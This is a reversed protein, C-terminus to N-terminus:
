KVSESEAKELIEIVKDVNVFKYQSFQHYINTLEDVSKMYDVQEILQSKSDLEKQFMIFIDQCESLYSSITYFPHQEVDDDSTAGRNVSEYLKAFKQTSKHLNTRNLDMWTNLDLRHQEFYQFADNQLQNLRDCVQKQVRLYKYIESQGKELQQMYSFQTLRTTHPFHSFLGGIGGNRSSNTTSSSACARNMVSFHKMNGILDSLLDMTAQHQDQWIEVEDLM